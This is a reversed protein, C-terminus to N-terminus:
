LGVGQTNDSASRERRDMEGRASRIIAFAFYRAFHAAADDVIYSPTVIYPPTFSFQGSKSTQSRAQNCGRVELGECGGNPL